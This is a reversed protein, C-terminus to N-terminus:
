PPRHPSDQLSPDDEARCCFGCICIVVALCTVLCCFAFLKDSMPWPRMPEPPHRLAVAIEEVGSVIGRDLYGNDVYPLVGYDAISRCLVQDLGRAQVKSEAYVSVYDPDRVVVLMVGYSDDGIKWEKLLSHAFADVVSDEHHWNPWPFTSIDLRDMVAVGLVYRLDSNLRQLRDQIAFRSSNALLGDPDCILGPATNLGCAKPDIRPNPFSHITWTPPSPSFLRAMRANVSSLAEPGSLGDVYDSMARLGGRGGRMSADSSLALLASAGGLLLCSTACCARRQLSPRGTDAAAAGPLKRPSRLAACCPEM